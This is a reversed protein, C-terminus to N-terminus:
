PCYIKLYRKIEKLSANDAEIVFGKKWYWATFNYNIDDRASMFEYMTNRCGALLPGFEETTEIINITNAWDNKGIMYRYFPIQYGWTLLIEAQEVAIREQGAFSIHYGGDFLMECLHAFEDKEYSVDEPGIVIYSVESEASSEVTREIIDDKHKPKKTLAGVICCGIFIILVIAIIKLRTWWTM